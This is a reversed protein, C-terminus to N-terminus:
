LRGDQFQDGLLMERSRCILKSFLADPVRDGGTRLMCLCGTAERVVDGRAEEAGNVM